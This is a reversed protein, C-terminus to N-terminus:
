SRALAPAANRPTGSVTPSAGNPIPLGAPGIRFRGTVPEGNELETNVLKGSSFEMRDDCDLAAMVPGVGSEFPGNMGENSGEM